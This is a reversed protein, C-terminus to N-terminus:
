NILIYNTIISDQLWSRKQFEIKLNYFDGFFPLLSYSLEPPKLDRNIISFPSYTHQDQLITGQLLSPSPMYSCSDAPIYTVLRAFVPCIQVYFKDLKKFM